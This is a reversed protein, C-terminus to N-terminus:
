RPRRLRGHVQLRGPFGHLLGPDRTQSSCPRARKGRRLPPPVGPCLGGLNRPPLPGQLKQREAWRQAADKAMFSMAFRVAKEESPENNELFAEPLLRIYSRVAHLFVRGRSRDGDFIFPPNPRLVSKTGPSIDAFLGPDAAPAPVAPTPVPSNAHPQQMLLRTLRELNEEIRDMREGAAAATAAPSDM